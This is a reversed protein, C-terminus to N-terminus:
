LNFIDKEIIHGINPIFNFNVRKLVQRKLNQVKRYGESRYINNSRM